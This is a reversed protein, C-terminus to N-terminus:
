FACETFGAWIFALLATTVFYPISIFELEKPKDDWNKKAFVAQFCGTFYLLIATLLYSEFTM